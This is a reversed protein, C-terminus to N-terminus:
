ATPVNPEVCDRSPWLTIIAHSPVHMMMFEHRSNVALKKMRALANEHGRVAAKWLRTGDPRLEFIDYTHDM